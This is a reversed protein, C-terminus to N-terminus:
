HCDPEWSLGLESYHRHGCVRRGPLCVQGDLCQSVVAGYRAYFRLRNLVRVSAPVASIRRTAALLKRLMRQQYSENLIHKALRCYTNISLCLASRRESPSLVNETAGLREDRRACDRRCEFTHPNPKELFEFLTGEVSKASESLNLEQFQDTVGNADQFTCLEEYPTPPINTNRLHFM